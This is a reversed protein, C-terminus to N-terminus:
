ANGNNQAENLKTLQDRLYVAFSAFVEEGFHVRRAKEILSDILEELQEPTM